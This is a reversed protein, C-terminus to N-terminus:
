GVLPGARSGTPSCALRGVPLETYERGVNTARPIRYKPEAGLSHISDKGLLVLKFLALDSALDLGTERQPPMSHPSGRLLVRFVMKGPTPAERGQYGFVVDNRLARLRSGM